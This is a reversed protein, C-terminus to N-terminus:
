HISVEVKAPSQLTDFLSFKNMLRVMAVDHKLSPLKICVYWSAKLSLSHDLKGFKFYRCTISFLKETSFVQPLGLCERYTGWISPIEFFDFYFAKFLSYLLRLFLVHLAIQVVNGEM